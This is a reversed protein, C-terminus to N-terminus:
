KKQWQLRNHVDQVGSVTEVADEAMRKADRSNVTGALTVEGNKVDVQINRADIFGHRTLRDCVEEQIREDSRVYGNPGMGSYPGPQQWAESESSASGSPNRAGRRKSLGRGARRSPQGENFQSDYPMRQISPDWFEPLYSEGPEWGFDRYPGAPRPDPIREAWSADGENRAM